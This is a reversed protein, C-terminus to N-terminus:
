AEFFCRAGRRGRGRRAASVVWVVVRLGPAEHLGEPDLGDVEGLVVGVVVDGGVKGAEDVVDVVFSSEVGGQAIEAGDPGLLAVGAGGGFGGGSRTWRRPRVGLNAWGKDRM